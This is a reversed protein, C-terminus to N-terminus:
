SCLIFFLILNCIEAFDLLYGNIPALQISFSFFFPDTRDAKVCMKCFVSLYGLKQTSQAIEGKQDM